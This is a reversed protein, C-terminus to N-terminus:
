SLHALLLVQSRIITRVELKEPVHSAYAHLLLLLPGKLSQCTLVFLLSRIVENISAMLTRTRAWDSAAIRELTYMATVHRAVENQVLFHVLEQNAEDM